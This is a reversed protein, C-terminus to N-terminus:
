WKHPCVHVPLTLILIFFTILICCTQLKHNYQCWFFGMADPPCEERQAVSAGASLYLSIIHFGNRLMSLNLEFDSLEIALKLNNKFNWLQM